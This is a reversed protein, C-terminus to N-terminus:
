IKIKKGFEIDRSNFTGDWKGTYEPVLAFMSWDDPSIHWSIQGEPLDVYVVNRWEPENTEIDDIGVGYAYGLKAALSCLAKVVIARETYARETRTAM